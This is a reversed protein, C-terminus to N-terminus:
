HKPLGSNTRPGHVDALPQRLRLIATAAVVKDAVTQGNGCAHSDLQSDFTEAAPARRSRLVPAFAGLERVLLCARKRGLKGSCELRDQRESKLAFAIGQCADASSWLRSSMRGFPRVRIGWCYTAALMTGSWGRARLPQRM